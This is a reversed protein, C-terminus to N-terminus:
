IDLRLQVHEVWIGWGWSIALSTTAYCTGYVRRVNLIVEEMGFCGINGTKVKFWVERFKIPNLPFYKWHLFYCVERLKIPHLFNLHILVVSRTDSDDCELWIDHSYYFGISITLKNRLVPGECCFYRLHRSHLHLGRGNRVIHFREPCQIKQPYATVGPGYIM